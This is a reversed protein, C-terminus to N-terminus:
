RGPPKHLRHVAAAARRQEGARREVVPLLASGIGRGLHEPHVYVDQANSTCLAYAALGGGPAEVLFSDAALDVEPDRWEDRVDDLTFDPEGVDAIDCATIVALVAEADAETAPRTETM